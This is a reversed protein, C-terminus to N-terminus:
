TSFFFLYRNQGLPVNRKRLPKTCESPVDSYKSYPSVCESVLKWDGLGGDDHFDVNEVWGLFRFVLGFYTTVEM